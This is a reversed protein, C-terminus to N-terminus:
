IDEWGLLKRELDDFDYNRQDFDNFKSKKELKKPENFTDDKVMHLMFGVLNNITKTQSYGFVKKIIEFNGNASELILKAERKNVESEMIELVKKIDEDSYVDIIKEDKTIAIENQFNNKEQISQNIKKIKNQQKSNIFFKISTVKRGTKIEEFEFNIDTLRNIEKQAKNLINRKFEKYESYISDAKLLYRIEELTIEIFGQKKFENCKLIEYVRISYKSRMLLINELKYQTFHEKLKLLYPKLKPDFSLDIYGKGPSHFASSLWAIQLIGKDKPIEMVKRMLGRTIKPLEIYKDMDKVGIINMYKKIEFRYEKFDEDNPEITSVLSFIIKQEELSLDYRSNMILENSKTVLNKIDLRIV